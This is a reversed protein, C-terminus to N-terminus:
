CDVEIHKTRAYYLPNKDIHMIAQNDCFMTRTESFKVHLEYLLNKIWYKVTWDWICILVMLALILTCVANISEWSVFLLFLLM